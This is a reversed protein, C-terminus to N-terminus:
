GRVNRSMPSINAGSEALKNNLLHARAILKLLKLDPRAARGPLAAEDILMRIGFGVRRLQAPVSLVLPQEQDDVSGAAPQALLEDLLLAATPEAAGSHITGWATTYSRSDQAAL